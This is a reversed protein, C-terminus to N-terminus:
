RPRNPEDAPCPSYPTRGEPHTGGSAGPEQTAHGWSGGPGATLPPVWRKRSWWEVATGEESDPQLLFVLGTLLPIDVGAM